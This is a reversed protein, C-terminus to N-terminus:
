IVTIISVHQHHHAGGRKSSRGSRTESVGDGYTDHHDDEGCELCFFKGLGGMVGGGHGNQARAHLNAALVAYKDKEDPVVGEKYRQAAFERVNPEEWSLTRSGNDSLLRVIEARKGHQHRRVHVGQSLAVLFADM